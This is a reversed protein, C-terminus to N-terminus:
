GMAALAENFVACPRMAANAKTDDPQYYGGIDM